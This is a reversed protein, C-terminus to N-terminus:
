NNSLGFFITLKSSLRVHYSYNLSEFSKGSDIALILTSDNNKNITDIDAGNKLLYWLINGSGKKAALTLASDGNENVLNVNAGKEILLQVISEFEIFM